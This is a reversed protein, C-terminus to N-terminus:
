SRTGNSAAVAELATTTIFNIASNKRLPPPKKNNKTPPPTNNTTSKQRHHKTPPAKNKIHKHQHLTEPPPTTKPTYISLVFADMLLCGGVFVLGWVSLGWVGVWLCGDVFVWGLCGGVFVWGCNLLSNKCRRRSWPKLRHLM